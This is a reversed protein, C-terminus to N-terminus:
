AMLASPSVLRAGNSRGSASDSNTAPYWVSYEPKLHARKKMASYEAIITVDATATVTKRPPHINGPTVPVDNKPRKPGIEFGVKCVKALMMTKTAFIMSKIYAYM